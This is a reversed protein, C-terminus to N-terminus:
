LFEMLHQFVLTPPLTSFCAPWVDYGKEKFACERKLCPACAFHAALNLQKVGFVGTQAPDTPGFLAITPINLASALHCLGTDVAVVAKAHAIVPMLGEIDLRPLVEANTDKAL